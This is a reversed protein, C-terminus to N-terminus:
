GSLCKCSHCFGVNQGHGKGEADDEAREANDTQEATDATRGVDYACEEGAGAHQQGKAGFREVRFAWPLIGHAPKKVM